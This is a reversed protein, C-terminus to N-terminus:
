VPPFYQALLAANFLDVLFSIARQPIHKLVRNPLGNSGPAKGFKFGRIADPVEMPKSLSPESAPAFICAQMPDTVKVIVATDSPDNVTQVQSDLRDALAEEKESDSLATGGPTVLPPSPTHIRMVRRTMKWMSQEEPDLSELHAAGSTTIGSM